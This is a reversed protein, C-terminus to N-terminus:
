CFLLPMYADKLINYIPTRLTYHNFRYVESDYNAPEYELRAIVNVKPYIGKSFTHAGKDEWSQNFLVM